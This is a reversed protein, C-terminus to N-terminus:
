NLKSVILGILVVLGLARRFYNVGQFLEELAWVLLATFAIIDLSRYAVGSTFLLKSLSAVTWIIIPLNPMQGITIKGEGDRFVRDFLTSEM